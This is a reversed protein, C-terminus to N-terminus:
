KQNRYQLPTKNFVRIFHLYYNSNSKFGSMKHIAEIKINEDKLFELSYLIRKKNIFNSFNTNLNKNLFSSIYTRNTNLKKALDYITLDKNCFFSLDISEMQELFNSGIVNNDQYYYDPVMFLEKQNLSLFYIFFFIVCCSINYLIFNDKTPNYILYTGILFYIIMLFVIFYIWKLNIEKSSYSYYDLIKKQHTKVYLLMKYSYYVIQVPLLIFIGFLYIFKPFTNLRSYEIFYSKSYFLMNDYHLTLFALINLFFFFVPLIFHIKVNIHNDSVKSVYLFALPCICLIIPVNFIELFILFNDGSIFHLFNYISQILICLFFYSMVRKNNDNGYNYFFLTIVYLTLIVTLLIFSADLVKIM